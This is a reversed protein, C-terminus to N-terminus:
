LTPNSSFCCRFGTDFFQYSLSVTYFTFDCTAGGADQTDFAGGVLRYTSTVLDKAIERLNGTIDYIKATAPVNGNLGSWDAWCSQLLPSGAPLLGNQVGPAPSFDFSPGLNCFKSVGNYTSTCAAGRPAYGWSCAPNTPPVHCATQWDALSCISGGMALCTQEVETPTVNFWPIRGQVSCAPTKDLTVGPPASTYYGDGTGAQTGNSSPRSAEYSYVWKSVGIQTVVPQVFYTANSGKNSFPEDVLGDCDNDVGDCLETCGGPLSACDAKVASCKTAAPGNCVYTGTTRCAGDGPPPKGDDSACPKGYNPVNENLVGNCNNDLSDCVEQATACTPNCVGAPFTCQWKGQSCTVGVKPAQCEPTSAAPSVGCVQVPSPTPVNEDIQGNCNDDIGNCVEQAQVYTCAYECKNDKPSSLDYYGPECAVFVCAANSCGWIAHVAGANCDHGCQGCNAPDSSLDAQNTLQGDCNADIACGDQAGPVPKVSGQCVITGGVCAKTGAKCATTAGAPPPPPVDCAGVADVPNDDIIGNCDDDVGNCVEFPGPDINGVCVLAGAKCQLTGKTCPANASKGCSGGQDTPNNDIIGDCDDDKGNCTELQQGQLLVNPGSCKVAGGECVTTGQHALTACEGNPSGYCAVGIKPDGSLDDAADIKGDCDNDIGDCIEIGGNTVDCQYNCTNPPDSDLHWWCDGPGNCSCAKLMCETNGPANCAKQPDTRTCEAQGHPILCKVGCDGCNDIGCFDVDEDVLGNCNDDIHNCTADNDSTKQCQYECTLGDKDLDVWGTDCKSCQCTGKEGPKAAAKCSIGAIACNKALQYCDNDCTGCQEPKTFDIGEDIQGNCNNDIGDCKEVGNNTPVCTGGDKKGCNPFCDAGGQGGQGADFLGGGAGTTGSTTSATTGLTDPCDAYCFADTTCGSTGGLGVALALAAWWTGLLRERPSMAVGGEERRRRATEAPARGRTAVGRRAAGRVGV